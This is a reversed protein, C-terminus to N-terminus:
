TELKLRHLPHWHLRGEALIIGLFISLSGIFFIPTPYEHLLPVALIVAIVPDIYSFIGVEQASIQSIGYMYLGYALASSFFIGFVIGILGNTNLESFSWRYLEPIMFPVFTIAGFLFGIYNVVFHNVNKLVKKTIIAHLVSGLTAIVLFINGEFATERQLLTAGHNLLLPSAIIILVGIFSVLIGWFVRQQPKERLFLVSLIFLFIPQSSAIIPANISNTKPLALFFFAINVSIGFLAGLCIEFLQKRTVAQKHLLAFPLFLLAAFFFRVFALTFPPVNTLTLKFIPSAAGWIINTIILALVPNM